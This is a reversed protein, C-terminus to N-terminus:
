ADTLSAQDLLQRWGRLPLAPRRAGGGRGGSQARHTWTSTRYSPWSNAPSAAFAQRELARAGVLFPEAGGRDRAGGHVDMGARSAERHSGPVGSGAGLGPGPCRHGGDSRRAPDHPRASIEDVRLSPRDPRRTSRSQRPLRAASEEIALSGRVAELLVAGPYAVAHLVWVAIARGFSSTPFPLAGADAAVLRGPLRDRARALMAASADAGVVPYGRRRLALAVVGTGTGIDLVPGRGPLLM